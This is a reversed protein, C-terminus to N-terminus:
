RMSKALYFMLNMANTLDCLANRNTGWGVRVGARATDEGM